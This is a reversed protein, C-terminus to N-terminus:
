EEIVGFECGPAAYRYRAVGLRDHEIVPHCRAVWKRDRAERRAREAEDIPDPVQRVYPDGAPGWRTVCNNGKWTGVCSTVSVEAAQAPTLGALSLIIAAGVPAALWAALSKHAHRSTLV